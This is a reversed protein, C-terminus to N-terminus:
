VARHLRRLDDDEYGLNYLAEAAVFDAETDIDVSREPPMVYAHVNEGYVTGCARAFGVDFVYIAGNPLYVREHDQRNRLVADPEVTRHMRGDADISHLWATPKAESVSIVANAGTTTFRHVANDIDEATRLPSTPQLVCVARPATGEMIKLSDILHLYADMASSSDQALHPPRRVPAEVGPMAHVIRLVEDDDTTVLVRDVTEAALAARLTHVILPVGAFNRINKGPLGKSGGRAPVIVIM